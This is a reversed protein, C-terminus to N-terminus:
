SDALVAEERERLYRASQQVLDELTKPDPKGNLAPYPDAGPGLPEPTVLWGDAKYDILHLARIITDLDLSGLGLARRNSDALNLTTLMDGAALIVEGIHEEESQMHYVDGNIHRIGPHDVAEIYRRADAVTPCFNVEASCNPEVAARVRHCVFLDAALRLTPFSMTMM